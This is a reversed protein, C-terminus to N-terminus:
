MYSHCSHFLRRGWIRKRCLGQIRRLAMTKGWQDEFQHLCRHNWNDFRIRGLHTRRWFVLRNKPCTQCDHSYTSSYKWRGSIHTWRQLKWADRIKPCSFYWFIHLNLQYTRYSNFDLFFCSHLYNLRWPLRLVKINGFNILLYYFEKSGWTRSINLVYNNQLNKICFDLIKPSTMAKSHKQKYYHTEATVM